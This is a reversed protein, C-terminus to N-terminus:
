VRSLLNGGTPLTLYQGAPAFIRYSEAEIYDTLLSDWKQALFGEVNVIDAIGLASNYGVLSYLSGQFNGTAVGNILNIGLAATGNFLGAAATTSGNYLVNGNWRLLQANTAPDHVFSLINVDYTDVVVGTLTLTTADSSGNTSVVAYPNGTANIGISFSRRNGSTQYQNFLAEVGGTAVRREFVIFVSLAGSTNFGALDAGGLYNSSNFIARNGDYIPRGTTASTWNGAAGLSGLNSLTDILGGTAAVSGANSLDYYLEPPLDTLLNWLSSGAFLAAKKHTIVSRVVPRICPRTVSRTMGDGTTEVGSGGSSANITLTSFANWDTGDWFRRNFSLVTSTFLGSPFMVVAPSNDTEIQQITAYTAYNYFTSDETIDPDAVVVYANGSVPNLTVPIDESELGETIRLIIAGFPLSGQVVTNITFNSADVVTFALSQTISGARLTMTAAVTFGTAAVTVVTQGPVIPSGSNVLGPTRPALSVAAGHRWNTWSDSEGTGTTTPAFNLTGTAAHRSLLYPKCYVNGSGAYVVTDSDANVWDASYGPNNSQMAFNLSGATVGALTLTLATNRANAIEATKIVSAPSVGSFECVSLAKGYNAGPFSINYDGAASPLNANTWICVAIFSGTGSAEETNGRRSSFTPAVSNFTPVSMTDTGGGNVGSAFVVLARGSAAAQTLTFSQVFPDTNNFTSQWSGVQLATM